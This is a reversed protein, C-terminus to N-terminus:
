STAFQNVFLQLVHISWSRFIYLCDSLSIQNILLIYCSYLMKRSCDYVFYPTSVIGLAKELFDFNLM